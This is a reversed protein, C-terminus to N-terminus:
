GHLLGAAYLRPPLHFLTPRSFPDTIRGIKRAIQGGDKSLARPSIRVTATLKGPRTQSKAAFPNSWPVAFM